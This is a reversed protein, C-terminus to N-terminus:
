ALLLFVIVFFLFIMTFMPWCSVASDSVRSVSNINRHINRDTKDVGDELDGLLNEQISLENGIERSMGKLTTVGRLIEDLSEDQKREEQHQRMV